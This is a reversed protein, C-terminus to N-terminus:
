EAAACIHEARSIAEEELPGFPYGIETCERLYLSLFRRLGLREYQHTHILEHVLLERSAPPTPPRDTILIAYRLSMGRAATPYLGFRSAIARVPRSTPLPMSEAYVIRVRNPARLGIARADALLQDDLPVGTRMARREHHKVWIAVFPVCLAITCRTLLQIAKTRTRPTPSM